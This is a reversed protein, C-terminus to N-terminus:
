PSRRPPLRLRNKNAALVVGARHRSFRSWSGSGVDTGGGPGGTTQDQLDVDFREIRVNQEALRECLVPLNDLLVARGAANRSRAPGVACCWRLFVEMRVSGNGASEFTIPIVSM